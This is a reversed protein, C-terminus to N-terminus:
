DIKLEKKLEYIRKRSLIEYFIVGMSWVDAKEGFKKQKFVEPALYDITGFQSFDADGYEVSKVKLLVAGDLDAIKPERNKLLINGPKLDHHVVGQEHLYKLGSSIKEMMQSQADEDATGIWSSLTGECLELVTVFYKQQDMMMFEYAKVVNEHELM